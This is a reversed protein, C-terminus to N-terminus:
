MVEKRELIKPTSSSASDTQAGAASTGSKVGTFCLCIAGCAANTNASLPVECTLMQTIDAAGLLLSCCIAVAAILVWAATPIRNWAAAQAYGEANSVDNMGSVALAVVPTPQASSLASKVASWLDTQLGATRSRIQELQQEDRTEYFAVRQSLYKLLLDRVKVVDGAPLLDARVLETGIANAEAEEYNKRMDYRSIAMSFTFGIILALLTLSATLVVGFYDRENEKLPVWRKSLFDGAYASIWLVAVAVALLLFPFDVLRSM